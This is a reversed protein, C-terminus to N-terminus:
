KVSLALTTAVQEPKSAKVPQPAAVSVRAADFKNVTTLTTKVAESRFTALTAYVTDPVAQKAGLVGAAEAARESLRGNGAAALRGLALAAQSSLPEARTQLLAELLATAETVADEFQHATRPNRAEYWALAELIDAQAQPLIRVNAM